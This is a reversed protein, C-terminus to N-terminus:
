YSIFEKLFLRNEFSAGVLILFVQGTANIDDYLDVMTAGTENIKREHELRTACYNLSRAVRHTRLALAIGRMTVHRRPATKLFRSHRTARYRM